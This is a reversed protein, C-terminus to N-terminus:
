VAGRCCPQRQLPLLLQQCLAGDDFADYRAGVVDSSPAQPTGPVLVDGPASNGARLGRSIVPLCYTGREPSVCPCSHWLGQNRSPSAKRADIGQFRGGAKAKPVQPFAGRAFVGSLGLTGSFRHCSCGGDLITFELEFSGVDHTIEEAVLHCPLPLGSM